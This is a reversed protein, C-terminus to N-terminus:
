KDGVAPQQRQQKRRLQLERGRPPHHAHALHQEVRRALLNGEHGPREHGLERLLHRWSRKKEKSQKANSQKAKSKEETKKEKKRKKDKRVKGNRGPFPFGLGQREDRFGLGQREDRFGFGSVRFGPAEM